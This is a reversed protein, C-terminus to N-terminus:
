RLKLMKIGFNRRHTLLWSTYLMCLCPEVCKIERFYVSVLPWSWTSAVMNVALLTDTVHVVTEAFVMSVRYM